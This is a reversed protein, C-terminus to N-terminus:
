TIDQTLILSCNPSKNLSTDSITDFLQNVVSPGIHAYFIFFLILISYSILKIVIKCTLHNLLSFSTFGHLSCVDDLYLIM